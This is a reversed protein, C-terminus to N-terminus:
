FIPFKSLFIFSSHMGINTNTFANVSYKDSRCFQNNNKTVKDTLSNAYKVCCYCNEVEQNYMFNKLISVYMVMLVNLLDINASIVMSNWSKVM